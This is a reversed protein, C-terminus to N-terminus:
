RVHANLTIFKMRVVKAAGWLKLFIHYMETGFLKLIEATTKEVSSKPSHRNWYRKKNVKLFNKYV